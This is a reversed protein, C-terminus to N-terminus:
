LGAVPTDFALDHGGGLANVDEDQGAVAVAFPESRAAEARRRAEDDVVGGAAYQEDPGVVCGFQGRDRRWWWGPGRRRALDRNHSPHGGLALVVEVSWLGLLLVALRVVKWRPSVNALRSM